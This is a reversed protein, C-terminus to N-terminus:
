PAYFPRPILLQPPGHLALGDVVGSRDHRFRRREAGANAVVSEADKMAMALGQM